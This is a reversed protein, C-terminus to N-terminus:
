PFVHPFLGKSCTPDIMEQTLGGFPVAVGRSVLPRPEAAPFRRALLPLRQASLPGPVPAFQLRHRSRFQRRRHRFGRSEVALFLVWSFCTCLVRPSVERLSVFPRCTCPFTSAVGLRWPSRTLAASTGGGGALLSKRLPSPRRISALTHPCPAWTAQQPNHLVTHMTRSFHFISSGHAGVTGSRPM